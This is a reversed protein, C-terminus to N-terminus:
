NKNDTLWDVNLKEPEYVNGSYDPMKISNNLHNGLDPAKEKLFEIARKISAKVKNGTNKRPAKNENAVALKERIDDLSKEIEAKRQPTLASDVMKQLNKKQLELSLTSLGASNDVITLDEPDFGYSSSPTASDETDDAEPDESKSHPLVGAGSLKIFRDFLEKSTQKKKPSSILSQIYYFGDFSKDTIFSKGEFCFEWSFGRGKKVRRFICSGESEAQLPNGAQWDNVSELFAVSADWFVGFDSSFNELEPPVELKVIKEFSCIDSIKRLDAFQKESLKFVLVKAVYDLFAFLSNLIGEGGLRVGSGFPFGDKFCISNGENRPVEEELSPHKCFKHEIKLLGFFESRSLGVTLKDFVLSFFKDAPWDDELATIASNLFCLALSYMKPRINELFEVDELFLGRLFLAKEYPVTPKELGVSESDSSSGLFRYSFEPSEQEESGMKKKVIPIPSSTQRTDCFRQFCSELMSDPLFPLPTLGTKLIYEKNNELLKCLSACDDSLRDKLPFVLLEKLSPIKSFWWDFVKRTKELSAERIADDGMKLDSQLYRLFSDSYARQIPLLRERVTKLLDDM